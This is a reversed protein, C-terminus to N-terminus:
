EKEHHPFSAKKTCNDVTLASQVQEFFWNLATSKTNRSHWHVTADFAPVTFPLELTKLPKSLPMECFSDAIQYPLIVLLETGPILKPLVSFHPLRLKIRRRAGLKQLVDEVMGHGSTRTVLAHPEALFQEMNMSEHIRPHAADMLCVYRSRLLTHSFIGPATLAKSCIAVDVHGDHLWDEVHEIELPVVEIEINPALSNLREMLKPLFGMEGLDSLALRFKRTSHSPDFKRAEAVCAEICRFGAKFGTYLQAALRTPQMGQSNRVFLPDDFQQRLKALSYSISPQTVFLREATTTLSGTEYLTIFTTILNLDFHNM